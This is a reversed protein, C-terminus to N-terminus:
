KKHDKDRRGHAGRGTPIMNRLFEAGRSIKNHASQYMRQWYERMQHRDFFKKM